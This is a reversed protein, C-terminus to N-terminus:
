IPNAVTQTPLGHTNEMLSFPSVTAAVAPEGGLAIGANARVMQFAIGGVVLMVIAAFVTHERHRAM